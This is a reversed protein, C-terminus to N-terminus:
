YQYQRVAQRDIGIVGKYQGKAKVAPVTVLVETEAVPPSVAPASVPQLDPVAAFEEEAVLEVEPEVAVPATVVPEVPLPDFAVADRPQQQSCASLFLFSCALVSFTLGRKM